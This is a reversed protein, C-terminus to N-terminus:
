DNFEYFHHILVTGFTVRPKSKDDKVLECDFNYFETDNADDNDDDISALDSEHSYMSLSSITSSDEDLDSGSCACNETNSISDDDDEHLESNKICRNDKNSESARIIRDTSRLCCHTSPPISEFIIRVSSEHNDNNSRSGNIENIARENNETSYKNGLNKTNSVITDGRRDDYFNSNLVNLQKVSQKNCIRDTEQSRECCINPKEKGKGKEQSSINIKELNSIIISVTQLSSVTSAGCDSRNNKSQTNVLDLINSPNM